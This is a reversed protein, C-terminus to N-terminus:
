PRRPAQRPAGGGPPRRRPPAARRAGRRSAPAAHAAGRPRVRARRGPPPPRGAPARGVVGADQQQQQHQRQRQRQRQRRPPPPDAPGAGAPPPAPGDAGVPPPGPAGGRRRGVGPQGAAGAGRDLPHAREGVRAPGGGGPPLAGAPQQLPCPLLLAEQAANPPPAVVGEPRHAGHAAPPVGSGNATAQTRSAASAGPAQTAQQEVHRRPPPSPHLIATHSAVQFSTNKYPTDGLAHNPLARARAPQCPQGAVAMWPQSASPFRVSPDQGPVPPGPPQSHSLPARGHTARVRAGLRRHRPGRAGARRAPPRGLPGGRACSVGPGPVNLEIATM